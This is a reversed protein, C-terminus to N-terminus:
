EGDEATNIGSRRVRTNIYTQAAAVAERIKLDLAPRLFPHRRAGPHHVTDGVFQGQIVLSGQRGLENIRRASMGQRQRDDVSIFHPSTGYELWVAIGAPGTMRGKVHIWVTIKGDKVSVKVQVAESVEDSISRDRAEDAIVNGAVRGAGRLVKMLDTPVTERMYRRVEARGKSWAM